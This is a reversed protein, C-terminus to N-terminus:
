AFKDFFIQTEPVGKAKLAAICSEVVPPAGCIYADLAANEPVYKKILDTVRGTDGTWEDAAEVRSLVPRYKFNPLKEELTKLYDSFYLDDPRRGGFFLNTQRSIGKHEIQHLISKIPALGSGTAILLIDRDSERLYFDGYAGRVTLVDGPKLHDHVYLAVLGEPARTVILELRQPDVPSSAISFARFEPGKTLEYRPVELQIYQGPKFTLGEAPSLLTFWLGKIVPTLTEIRDVRARFEKVLFLEEPIVISLNNRVKVQCALRVQNQLEAPSLYPTETPLVPGGGAVVRVKCYACTGRGGCASPIFIGADGLTSLLPNGGRVRLDKSGNVDITAEGFDALYHGAIELLLALGAAFGCIILLSTILQTM